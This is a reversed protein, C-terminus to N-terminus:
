AATMNKPLIKFRVNQVSPTSISAAQATLAACFLTFLVLARKM